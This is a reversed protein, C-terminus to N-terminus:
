SDADVHFFERSLYNLRGSGDTFRTFAAYVTLGHSMNAQIETRAHGLDFTVTYGCIKRSWPGDTFFATVPASGWDCFGTTVPDVAWVHAWVRGHRSTLEARSIGGTRGNTNHWVGLVASVDLPERPGAAGEPPIDAARVSRIDTGTTPM